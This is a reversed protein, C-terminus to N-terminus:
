KPEFSSEGHGIFSVVDSLSLPPQAPGAQTASTGSRPTPIDETVQRGLTDRRRHM